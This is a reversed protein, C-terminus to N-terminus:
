LVLILTPWESLVTSFQQLSWRLSFCYHTSECLPKSVNLWQHVLQIQYLRYFGLYLKQPKKDKLTNICRWKMRKVSWIKCLFTYIDELVHELHVAIPKNINLTLSKGHGRSIKVIETIEFSQLAFLTPIFIPKITYHALQPHTPLQALSSIHSSFHTGWWPM